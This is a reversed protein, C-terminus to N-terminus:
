ETLHSSVDLLALVSSKEIDKEIATAASVVEGEDMVSRASEFGVADDMSRAHVEGPSSPDVPVAM